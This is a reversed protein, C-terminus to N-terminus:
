LVRLKKMDCEALKVKSSDWLKMRRCWWWETESANDLQHWYRGRRIERSTLSLEWFAESGYVTTRLLLEKRLHMAIGQSSTFENPWGLLYLTFTPAEASQLASYDDKSFHVKDSLDKTSYTIAKALERGGHGQANNEAPGQIQTWSPWRGLTNSSASYHFILCWM